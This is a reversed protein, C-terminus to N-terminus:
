HRLTYGYGIAYHSALLIPLPTVAYDEAYGYTDVAQPRCRIHLTYRFSTDRSYSYETAAIDSMTAYGDAFTMRCHRAM